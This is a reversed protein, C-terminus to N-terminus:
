LEHSQTRPNLPQRNLSPKRQGEPEPGQCFGLAWEAGARVSESQLQLLQSLLFLKSLVFRATTQKQNDKHQANSKYANTYTVYMCVYTCGYMRAYLCVCRNGVCMTLGPLKEKSM